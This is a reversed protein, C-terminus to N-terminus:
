SASNSNWVNMGDLKRVAEFEYQIWPDPDGSVSYWMDENNVSHLNNPDLGSGDITKESLAIETSSSATVTVTSGLIPISYPESTFSWVDGKFVTKDPTGNVEDVRWYYTEGFDLRGPDFSAVDLDQATPITADRVEAADTGLYIEHKVAFLGPQWNLVVDCLVDAAENVPVPAIAREAVVGPGRGAMVEMIDQETLADSYIRVDDLTCLMTNAHNRNQGLVFENFTADIEELTIRNTVEGNYYLAASGDAERVVALHVWDLTTEGIVTTGTEYNLRYDGPTGAVDMQFGANTGQHITFCSSFTNQGLEDAKVWLAITFTPWLVDGEPLDYEIFGEGVHMGMGFKGEDSWAPLTSGAKVIGDHGNGTIDVVVTDPGEEFDWHVVLEAFAVTSLSLICILSFVYNQSISM